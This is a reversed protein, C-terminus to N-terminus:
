ARTLLEVIRAMQSPYKQALVVVQATGVCTQSQLFDAIQPNRTVAEGYDDMAGIRDNLNARAMCRMAYAAATGPTDPVLVICRTLAAVAISYDGLQYRTLGRGFHAEANREDIQVAADFDAAASRYDGARIRANGQRVLAEARRAQERAAPPPIDRPVVIM